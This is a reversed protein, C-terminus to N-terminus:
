RRRVLRQRRRAQRLPRECPRRNVEEEPEGARVEGPSPTRLDELPPQMADFALAFTWRVAPAQFPLTGVSSVAAWTQITGARGRPCLKLQISMHSSRVGIVELTNRFRVRDAQDVFVVLPKGILHQAGPVSLILRAMSNGDLVIGRRDTEIYAIPASEFLDRYREWELERALRAELMEDARAHLEDRAVNLEAHAHDLELLAEALLPADAGEEGTARRNLQEVRLATLQLALDLSAARESGLPRQRRGPMQRLPVEPKSM